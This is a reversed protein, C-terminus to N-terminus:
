LSTLTVQQAKVMKAKLEEAIKLEGEWYPKDEQHAKAIQESCQSIRVDIFYYLNFTEEKDLITTVM